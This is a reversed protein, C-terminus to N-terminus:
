FELFYGSFALCSPSNMFGIYTFKLFYKKTKTPQSVWTIM